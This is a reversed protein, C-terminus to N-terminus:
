HPHGAPWTQFPVAQEFLKHAVGVGVPFPTTALVAVGAVGPCAHVYSVVPANVDAHEHFHEPFEVGDPSVQTHAVPYEKTFLTQV